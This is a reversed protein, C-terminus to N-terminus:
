QQDKGQTDRTAVPELLDTKMWGTRFPSGSTPIDMPGTVCSWLGVRRSVSVLTGARFFVRQERLAAQDFRLLDDVPSPKVKRLVAETREFQCRTKPLPESVQNPSNQQAFAPILSITCLLISAVARM